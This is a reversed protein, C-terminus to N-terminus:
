AEPSKSGYWLTLVLATAICVIFGLIIIATM